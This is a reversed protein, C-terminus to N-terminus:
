GGWELLYDTLEMIPVQISQKSLWQKKGGATVLVLHDIQSVSRVLSTPVTEAKTGHIGLKAEIALLSNRENEIILDVEEGDKTRWFSLRWDKGYNNVLKVVESVVLSEFLGGVQPSKMLPAYDMWGQLRAALGSDMVHLKPAKILRKNLNTEFPPLLYLLSTRELVSVWEKVTVSRVGSDKAIASYNVLNGTRAALMGLVTHFETKKSIQAAIVIDQEIYTRIYDNLYTSVNLADNTYLEPRGTEEHAVLRDGPALGIREESGQRFIATSGPSISQYELEADGVSLTGLGWEADRSLNEQPAIRACAAPLPHGPKITPAIWHLFFVAYEDVLRCFQDRSTGGCLVFL